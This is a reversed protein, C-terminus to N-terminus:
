EDDYESDSDYYGFEYDTKLNELDDKLEEREDNRCFRSVFDFMEILLKRTNDSTDFSVQDIGNDGQTKIFSEPFSDLKNLSTDLEYKILGKADTGKEKLFDFDSALKCYEDKEKKGKGECDYRKIVSKSFVHDERKTIEARFPRKIFGNSFNQFLNHCSFDIIGTTSETINNDSARINSVISRNSGMKLGNEFDSMTIRKESNQIFMSNLYEFPLTQFASIEWIKMKNYELPLGAPQNSIPFYLSSSKILNVMSKLRSFISKLNQPHAVPDDNTLGWTFITTKPLYEDRLEQLLCDTFGAWGSDIETILNVGELLDSDELIKRFNEDLVDRGEEYNEKYENSGIDYNNFKIDIQNRYYGFNENNDYNWNKLKLISNPKYIVRSFDTFFRVSDPSLKGETDENADLAKQYQHKEIRDTTTINTYNTVLETDRVPTNDDTLSQFYEFQGMSGYGNNYDWLLARPYFSSSKGDASRSSQLHVNPLIPLDSVRKASYLNSEQLNYFHTALNNAGPSLSLTIVEHM